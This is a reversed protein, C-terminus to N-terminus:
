SFYVEGAPLSQTQIFYQRHGKAELDEQRVIELNSDVTNIRVLETGNNATGIYRIQFYDSSISSISIFITQLRQIWLDLTSGYAPDVGNNESARIIGQIPPTAALYKVDRSLSNAANVIISELRESTTSLNNTYEEINRNRQQVAFMFAIVTASVLGTISVTLIIQTRLSINKFIL